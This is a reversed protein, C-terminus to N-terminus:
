LKQKLLEQIQWTGLSIHTDLILPVTWYYTITPYTSPSTGSAARCGCYFQPPRVTSRDERLASCSRACRPSLTARVRLIGQWFLSFRSSVFHNASVGFFLLGFCRIVCHLSCVFEIESFNQLISTKVTRELHNRKRHDSWIFFIAARFLSEM